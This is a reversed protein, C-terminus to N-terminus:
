ALQSMETKWVMGNTNGLYMLEYMGKFFLIKMDLMEFSM